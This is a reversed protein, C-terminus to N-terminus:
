HDCGSPPSSTAQSDSSASDLDLSSLRSRRNYLRRNPDSGSSALARNCNSDILGDGERPSIVELRSQWSDLIDLYTDGGEVKLIIQYCACNLNLSDNLASSSVESKTFICRSFRKEVIGKSVSMARVGGEM